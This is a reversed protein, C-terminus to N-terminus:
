SIKGQTYYYQSQGMPVDRSPLVSPFGSLVDIVFPIGTLAPVGAVASFVVCLTNRKRQITKPISNRAKREEVSHKPVSNRANETRRFQRFESLFRFIRRNRIGHFLKKESFPLGLPM